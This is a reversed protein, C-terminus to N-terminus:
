FIRQVRLGRSELMSQVSVRGALHGTGVVFLVTGPRELRSILVNAFNRNRRTMILELLRPPVADIVAAFSDLNGSAWAAEYNGAPPLRVLSADVVEDLMARQEASPLKRFAGIVADATEAGSIPRGRARFERILVAEVGSAAQIDPLPGGGLLHRGVAHLGLIIAAGWTELNDFLSPPAKTDRLLRALADRREPSVRQLIPVAKVMVMAELPNISAKSIQRQSVELVLEDAQGIIRDLAPSRWRRGPTLAHVSGFLYIRTDADSVLWIAPRPESAAQTQAAGAALGHDPPAQAAAIGPLLPLLLALLKRKM